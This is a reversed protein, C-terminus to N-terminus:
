LKTKYLEKTQFVKNTKKLLKGSDVTLKEKAPVMPLRLQTQQWTCLYLHPTSRETHPHPLWDPDLIQLTCCPWATPCGM